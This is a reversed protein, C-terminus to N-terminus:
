VRPDQQSGRRTHFNYDEEGMMKLPVRAIVQFSYDGSEELVLWQVADLGLSGTAERVIRSDSEEM